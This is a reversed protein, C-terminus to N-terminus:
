NLFNIIYDLISSLNFYLAFSYFLTYYVYFLSFNIDMQFELISFLILANMRKETLKMLKIMIDVQRNEIFYELKFQNVKVLFDSNTLM